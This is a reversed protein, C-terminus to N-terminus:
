AVICKNPPEDKIGGSTSFICAKYCDDFLRKLGEQTVSSCIGVTDVATLFKLDKRKAFNKYAAESSKPPASLYYHALQQKFWDSVKAEYGSEYSSYSEGYERYDSYNERVVNSSGSVLHKAKDFRSLCVNIASEPYCKRIMYAYLKWDRAHYENAEETAKMNLAANAVRQYDILIVFCHADKWKREAFLQPLPISDQKKDEQQQEQEQLQQSDQVPQESGGTSSSSNKNNNNNGNNIFNNQTDYINVSLVTGDVMVNAQSPATHQIKKDSFVNLCYSDIVSTKGSDNHGVFVINCQNVAAAPANAVSNAPIAYIKKTTKYPVERLFQDVQKIRSILEGFCSKNSGNDQLQKTSTKSKENKLKAKSQSEKSNNNGNNSTNNNDNNVTAAAIPEVMFSKYQELAAFWLADSRLASKFLKCVVADNLLQPRPLYSYVVAIIDAPLQQM